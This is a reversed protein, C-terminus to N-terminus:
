PSGCPGRDGFPKGLLRRVSKRLVPENWPKFLIASAGAQTGERIVSPLHVGTLLACVTLPSRELVARILETGKMDPMREDSLVLDVEGDSLRDLAGSGCDASLLDYGERRLCRRLAVLVAPEDDVLLLVPRDSGRLELVPEVLIDM